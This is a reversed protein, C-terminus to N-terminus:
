QELMRLRAISNEHKQFVVINRFEQHHKVYVTKGDLTEGDNLKYFLVGNFDPNVEDKRREKESIGEITM